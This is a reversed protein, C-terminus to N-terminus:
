TVAGAKARSASAILGQIRTCFRNLWFVRRARDYDDVTRCAPTM